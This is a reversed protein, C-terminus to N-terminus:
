LSASRSARATRDTSAGTAARARPSRRRRRWCRRCRRRSRRRDVVGPHAVHPPRGVAAAAARRAVVAEAATRAGYTINRSLSSSSGRCAQLLRSASISRVPASKTVPCSARSSRAPAAPRPAVVGVSYRRRTTCPIARPGRSTGRSSRWWCARGPRTGAGPAPQPEPLVQLVLVVTTAAPQQAGGAPEGHHRPHDVEPVPGGLVPRVPHRDRAADPSSLTAVPHARGPQAVAGAHRRAEGVQEGGPLAPEEALVQPDVEVVRDRRRGPSSRRLECRM